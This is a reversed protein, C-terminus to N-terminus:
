KDFHRIETFFWWWDGNLSALKALPQCWWISPTTEVLAVAFNDRYQVAIAHLVSPWFVMHVACVWVTKLPAAAVTLNLLIALAQLFTGYFKGFICLIGALTRWARQTWLTQKLLSREMEIERDRKSVRGISTQSGRDKGREERREKERKRMCKPLM